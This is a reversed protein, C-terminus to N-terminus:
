SALRQKCSASLNALSLSSSVLSALVSVSFLKIFQLHYVGFTLTKLNTHFTINYHQSKVQANIINSV